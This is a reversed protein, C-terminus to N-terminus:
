SLAGNLVNGQVLGAPIDNEFGLLNAITPVIDVSEGEVSTIVNNQNVVGSPGCILAFIERSTADNTHDFAPRGYADVLTNASLNRGHEPVAILVTDNALGPTSQITNWLHAVGWDAKRLNNCYSTFDSHCVDVGQINLVTLEPQFRKLVEETYYINRLDNNMESGFGWNNYGPNTIAEAFLDDIFSKIEAKDNETNVVGVDDANFKNGFSGDCFGKLEKALNENATEFSKPNGIAAYGEGSILSTSQIYNAGYGAGYGPYSSYNLLPYPGLSDSIWWANKASAAENSGSHKRYYEFITPYTPSARLNLDTDNYRGTMATVHGNYHGTPGSKFRFEKYLTGFEQLRSSGLPSAPLTKDIGSQPTFGGSVDKLMNVMLNSEEQKVSEINRVGGAFLCFVVHNVKRNGTAAFLRGSPLLYPIAFASATAVGAKKIFDRRKM